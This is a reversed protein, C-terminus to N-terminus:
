LKILYNIFNSPYILTDKELIKSTNKIYYNKLNNGDIRENSNKGYTLKASKWVSFYLYKSNKYFFDSYFERTSEDFEHLCDIALTLDFKLSILSLQHPFIFVIDNKKILLELREANNIDYGLAIKKKPFAIKLRKYCIYMAPPIDIIVYKKVKKSLTLIAETTRGSGAGLELINLPKTLIKNKNFIDYEFLSNIKDQTFKIKNVLIYYFGGFNIYTKDKLLKAKNILKKKLNSYLLLTLMNSKLLKEFNASKNKKIEFIGLKKNIKKNQVNKFAKSILESNYDDMTFYNEAIKKSYNKIGDENLDKLNKISIWRWLNSTQNYSKSYIFKNFIEKLLPDKIKFQYDLYFKKLNCKGLRRLYFKILKIL